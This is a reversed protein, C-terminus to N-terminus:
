GWTIFYGPPSVVAEKVKQQMEQVLSGMDRGRIFVATAKVRMGFERSINMSGGRVTFNAVQELPIHFGGPTDVLINKINAMGREAENLRVLVSFHKEGEWLETAAKGGLATEIVDQIDSVNLGYRASRERDITINSQPVEGMRDVFARAVGRVSRITQLVEEAHHR